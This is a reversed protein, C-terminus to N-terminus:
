AWHIGHFPLPKSMHEGLGSHLGYRKRAGAERGFEVKASLCQCKHACDVSPSPLNGWNKRKGAEGSPVEM